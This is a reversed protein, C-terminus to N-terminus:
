AQVFALSNSRLCMDAISRITTRDIACHLCKKKQKKKKKVFINECFYECVCGLINVCVFRGWGWVEFTVNGVIHRSKCFRPFPDIRAHCLLISGWIQSTSVFALFFLVYHPTGGVLALNLM